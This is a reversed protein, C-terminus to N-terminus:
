EKQNDRPKIKHFPWHEKQCKADCYRTVKCESCKERANPQFCWDCRKEAKHNDDYLNVSWVGKMLIHNIVLVDGDSPIPGNEDLLIWSANSLRYADCAFDKKGGSREADFVKHYQKAVEGLSTTDKHFAFLEPHLCGESCAWVITVVRFDSAVAVRGQALYGDRAKRRLM